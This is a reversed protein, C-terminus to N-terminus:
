GGMSTLAARARQVLPHVPPDGEEWLNIVMRYARRAEAPQDLAAALDALLLWM